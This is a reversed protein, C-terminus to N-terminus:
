KKGELVWREMREVAEDVKRLSYDVYVATVKAGTSHGLAHSIVDQSIDLDNAAITAWSHRAWYMSLDHPLGEIGKLQSNVKSTFSDLTTHRDAMDLLRVDGRHLRILRAAERCVLVDYLKGTKHRRYHLRGGEYDSPQADYLDAGNMGILFFSLFFYDRARAQWGTLPLALFTRLQTVSLARKRTEEFRISYQRFPDSHVLGAAEGEHIIAALKSMVIAITNRAYGHARMFAELERLSRTDIDTLRVGVGMGELAIRLAYAYQNRTNGRKTGIVQQAFESLLPSPKPETQSLLWDRVGIASLGHLEGALEGRMLEMELASVKAELMRCFMAREPWVSPPLARPKRKVADWRIPLLYVHLPLFASQQHRSICLYLPCPRSTDRHRTDLYLRTKM